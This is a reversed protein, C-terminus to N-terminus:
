TIWSPIFYAKHRMFQQWCSCGQSRNPVGQAAVLIRGQIWLKWKRQLFVSAVHNPSPEVEFVSSLNIERLFRAAPIKGSCRDWQWFVQRMQKPCKTWEINRTTKLAAQKIRLKCSSLEAKLVARQRFPINMYFLFNVQRVRYMRIPRM